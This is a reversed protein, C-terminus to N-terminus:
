QSFKYNLDSTYILDYSLRESYLSTCVCKYKYDSSWKNKEIVQWFLSDLWYKLFIINQQRWFLFTMGYKILLKMFYIKLLPDKKDM